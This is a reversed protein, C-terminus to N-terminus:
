TQLDQTGGLEEFRAPDNVLRKRTGGSQIKLLTWPRTKRKNAATALFLGFCNLKHSIYHGSMRSKSLIMSCIRQGDIRRYLQVEIRGQQVLLAVLSSWLDEHAIGSQKASIAALSEDTM